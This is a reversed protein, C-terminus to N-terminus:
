ARIRVPVAKYAPTKSEEEHYWLPVLPNMEPYYAAVCGDPLSFPTVALGGVERHVGDEVDTVLSVIQGEVLGARGMEEPNILLVDRSGEIGRMRDSYGYITTNFQDNSRLTILRYRGAAEDAGAASLKKPIKFEAKGSETKWTRERASNGRYFGGPTFMRQNFDKFEKPYTQEILGRVLGYDGTWDDWRVKPNPPLSAKALGAVIALESLLQDSAPEHQGVSGHICSLSDEMTVTQPGTKQKDEESRGLCPLLYAIEGNVLHSHNLKTGIQVTLRM